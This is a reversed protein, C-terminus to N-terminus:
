RRCAKVKGRALPPVPMQACPPSTPELTVRWVGGVRRVVATVYGDHPSCPGTRDRQVATASSALCGLPFHYLQAVTASPPGTEVLVSPPRPTRAPPTPSQSTPVPAPASGPGGGPLVAIALAAGIGGLVAITIAILVHRRRV